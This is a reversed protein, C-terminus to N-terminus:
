STKRDNSCCTLASDLLLARGGAPGLSGRRDEAEGSGGLKWGEGVVGVAGGAEVVAVVAGLMGCLGSGEAESYPLYPRPPFDPNYLREARIDPSFIDVDKGTEQQCKQTEPLNDLHLGLLCLWRHLANGTSQGGGAFRHLHVASGRDTHLRM